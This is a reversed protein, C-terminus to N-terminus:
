LNAQRQRRFAPVLPMYWWLGTKTKIKGKLFKNVKVEALSCTAVSPM